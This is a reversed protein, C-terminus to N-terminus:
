QKPQDLTEKAFTDDRATGVGLEDLAEGRGSVGVGVGEGGDHRSVPGHDHRNPPALKTAAARVGVVCELRCNQNEHVARPTERDSRFPFV